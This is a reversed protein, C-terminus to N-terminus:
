RKSSAVKGWRSSNSRLQEKSGVYNEAKLVVDDHRETLRELWQDM